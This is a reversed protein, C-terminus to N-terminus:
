YSFLVGFIWMLSFNLDGIFVFWNLIKWSCTVFNSIYVCRIGCEKVHFRLVLFDLADDLGSLQTAM